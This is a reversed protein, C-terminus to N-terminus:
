VHEEGKMHDLNVFDYGQKHLTRIIIPLAQLTKEPAGPAGQNDHLVIISGPEIKDIVRSYIDEVTTRATWDQAEISWYAIDLDLRKAAFMSAANFTGWPPRYWKPPKELINSLLNYTQNMDRITRLPSMIWAHRHSYSHCGITHGEKDMRKIIDSHRKAEKGMIFFSAPVDYERLINLLRPTYDPNPGDDFTLAVEKKPGQGKRFVKNSRNRAWYSPLLCYLLFIMSLILLISWLM